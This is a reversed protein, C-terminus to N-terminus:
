FGFAEDIETLWNDGYQQQMAEKAKETRYTYKDM